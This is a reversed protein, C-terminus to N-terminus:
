GYVIAEGMKNGAKYGSFIGLCSFLCIETWGVILGVPVGLIVRTWNHQGGVTIVPIYMFCVVGVILFYFAWPIAKNM